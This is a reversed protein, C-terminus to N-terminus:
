EVLGDVPQPSRPETAPFEARLRAVLAKFRGQEFARGSRRFEQLLPTHKLGPNEALRGWIFAEVDAPPVRQRNFRRPPPLTRAIQTFHEQLASSRLETLEATQIALAAARVNLSPYSGRLYPAEVGEARAQFGGHLPILHRSLVGYRRMGASFISLLDPGKLHRLAETLDAAIACVYQPAAAVLLPTSSDVEALEALTVPQSDEFLERRNRGLGAWWAQTEGSAGRVKSIAVTDPNGRSFTASYPHIAQDLSLLGYGASCVWVTPKIQPPAEAPISRAVHWHDGAYLEAVRVTPTSSNLLAVVWRTVREDTTGERYWRLQLEPTPAATKRDTCAVLVNVRLVSV